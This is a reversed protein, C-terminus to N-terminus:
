PARRRRVAGLAAVGLALALATLSGLTPVATPSAAAAPAAVVSVDDVYLTGADNRGLFLIRTTAAAAVFNRTVPTWTATAATTGFVCDGSCTGAGGSTMGGTTGVLAQLDVPGDGNTLTRYWFSLVYSTGPTTPIDQYLSATNFSTLDVCGPNPCGVQASRTDTHPISGLTSWQLTPRTWSAMAGEFGPNQVLNQAQAGFALLPLAALLLWRLVAARMARGGPWRNREPPRVPHAAHNRTRAPQAFAGNNQTITGRVVAFMAHMQGLGVAIVVFTKM